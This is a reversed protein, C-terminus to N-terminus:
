NFHNLQFNNKQIEKFLDLVETEVCEIIKIGHASDAALDDIKLKRPRLLHTLDDRSVGIIVQAIAQFYDGCM